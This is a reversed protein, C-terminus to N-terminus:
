VWFIWAGVLEIIVGLVKYVPPIKPFGITLALLFATWGAVQFNGSWLNITSTNNTIGNTELFDATTDLSMSVILCGFFFALVGSIVAIVKVNM